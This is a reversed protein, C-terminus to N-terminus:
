SARTAPKAGAGPGKPPPKLSSVPKSGSPYAGIVRVRGSPDKSKRKDGREAM